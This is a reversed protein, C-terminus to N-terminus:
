TVSLKWEGNERVMSVKEKQPPCDGKFTIEAQGHRVDGEGQLELDINKIGGCKQIHDAQVELVMRLKARGFVGHVSSSFYDAAHDMEGKELARYFGAYATKPANGCGALGACLLIIAFWRFGSAMYM